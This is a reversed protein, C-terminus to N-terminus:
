KMMYRVIPTTAEDGEMTEVSVNFLIYNQGEHLKELKSCYLFTKEVSWELRQLQGKNREMWAAMTGCIIM